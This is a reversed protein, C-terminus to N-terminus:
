LNLGSGHGAGRKTMRWEINTMEGAEREESSLEM